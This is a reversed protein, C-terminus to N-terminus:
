RGVTHFGVLTDAPPAPCLARRPRALKAGAIYPVQGAESPARKSNREPRGGVEKVRDPM